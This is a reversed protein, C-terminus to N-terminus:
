RVSGYNRATVSRRRRGAIALGLITSALLGATGRGGPTSCGCGGSDEGTAVADPAAVAVCSKSAIDCVFGNACDLSSACTSRCAGFAPECIYPVCDFPVADSANCKAGPAACYAPGAGNTSGVCRNRACMTGNGAGICSGDGGCTGLCTLAPGCENKLDVGVPEVTCKGPNALLACSYCRDTCATDCCVGEVCHNTTCESDKTCRLFDGSVIPKPPLVPAPGDAIALADGSGADPVGADSSVVCTGATCVYGTKCQADSTCSENCIMTDKCTLNNPCPTVTAAICTNDVGSCNGPTVLFSGSCGNPGCKAATSQPKCTGIFGPLRCSECEGYCPKDCCLSNVCNSSACESNVVCSSGNLKKSTCIGGLCIFGAACDPDITCTIACAGTSLCAKAPSCMRAGHPAGAPVNGCKGELTTIDCAQCAGTCPSNCCYGDVCYNTNCEDTGVCTTGLGKKLVCLGSSCYHTSACQASSTCATVCAGGSCAYGPTCSARPAVPTGTVNTCTGISGTVNCAECQATCASNCCVGDVCFNSTCENSAGCAVGSAKKPACSTGTCYSGAACAADTVCTAACTGGTGCNLFPSCSARAGHPPQGVVPVCVGLYSPVDCAECQGTCATNCCYGDVCNPCGVGSTTCTTADPIFIEISGTTSGTTPRGAAVVVRGDPLAWGTHEYRPAALSPGPSWTNSTPDFIETTSLITDPGGSGAVRGWGGVVMVKGDKLKFALHEQRQYGMSGVAVFSSGNYVEATSAPNGFVVRGGALLVRADNLTTATHFARTATLNPGAAYADTAVDYILSSSYNTASTAGGAILIKNGSLLTQTHHARPVTLPARAIWANSGLDFADVTAYYTGGPAYGGFAYVREPSAVHTLPQNYRSTAVNPTAAGGTLPNYIEATTQGAVFLSGSSLVVGTISSKAYASAPMIATTQKSADFATVSPTFSSFFLLRGDPAPLMLAQAQAAFTAASAVWAPDLAIPYTLGAQDFSLTLTRAAGEGDVRADVDRKEGRADIAFLHETSLVAIGAADLLAVRHDLVRVSAVAPGLRLSYTFKSPAGSELLRVEEVRDSEVLEIVDVGDRAHEYVVANGEVRGPAPHDDTQITVFFGDRLSARITMAGDATKPLTVEIPGVRRVGAARELAREIGRSTTILAVDPRVHSRFADFRKLTTLPSATVSADPSSVTERSSCGVLAAVLLLSRFRLM